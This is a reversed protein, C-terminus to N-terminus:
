KDLKQQKNIEQKKSNIEVGYKFSAENKICVILVILSIFPIVTLLNKESKMTVYWVKYTYCVM